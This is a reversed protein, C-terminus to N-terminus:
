KPPIPSHIVRRHQGLERVLGPGPVLEPGLVLVLEPGLGLGPVLALELELERAPGLGQVLVLGPVLPVLWLLTRIAIQSPTSV